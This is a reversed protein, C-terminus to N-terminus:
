GKGEPKPADAPKNLEAARQKDAADRIADKEKKDSESKKLSLEAYNTYANQTKSLKAKENLRQVELERLRAKGAEIAAKDAAERETLGTLKVEKGDADKITRLEVREAREQPTIPQSKEQEARVEAERAERKKVIEKIEEEAVKKQEEAEKMKTELRAKEQAHMQKYQSGTVTVGGVTTEKGVTEPDQMFGKKQLGESIGAAEKAIGSNLEGIKGTLAAMQEVFPKTAADIAQKSQAEMVKFSNQSDTIQRERESLPTETGTLKEKTMADAVAKDVTTKASKDFDKGAKDRISQAIDRLSPNEKEIVNAYEIQRQKSAVDDKGRGIAQTAITELQGQKVKRVASSLSTADFATKDKAMQSLTDGIVPTKKIDTKFNGQVSGAVKSIITSTSRANSGATIAARAAMARVGSGAALTALRSSGAVVTGAGATAATLVITKGVEVIGGVYGGIKKTIEGSHKQALVLSQAFLKYVLIFIVIDVAGFNSHGTIPDILSGFAGNSTLNKATRLANAVNTTFYISIYLLTFYYVPMFADKQVSGWWDYEKVFDDPLLGFKSLLGVPALVMHFVFAIIRGIFLYGTKSFTKAILFLVVGLVLVAYLANANTILDPNLTSGSSGFFAGPNLAGGMARGLGNSGTFGLILNYLWVTFLNGIDLMAKTVFLSFNIAIAGLVINKISDKPVKAYIITKIAASILLFIFFINCVDRVAVWGAQIAPSNYLDGFSLMLRLIVDLTFAAAQVYWLLPTVVTVLLIKGWVGAVLDLTIGSLLGALWTLPNWISVTNAAADAGHSISPAVLFVGIVLIPLIFIRNRLSLFKKM